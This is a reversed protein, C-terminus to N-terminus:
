IDKAKRAPYRKKPMLQQIRGLATDNADLRAEIDELRQMLLVIKAQAAKLAEFLEHDVSTKPADLFEWSQYPNDATRIRLNVYDRFDQQDFFAMGDVLGDHVNTVFLAYDTRGGRGEGPRPFFKVFHGVSPLLTSAPKIAEAAEPNVTALLHGV